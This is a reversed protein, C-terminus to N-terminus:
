SIPTLLRLSNFHPSVNIVAAVSGILFTRAALSKEPHKELDAAYPVIGQSTLKVIEDKRNKEWDEVYPTRYV